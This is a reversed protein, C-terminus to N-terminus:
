NVRMCYNFAFIFRTAETWSTLVATLYNHYIYSAYGSGASRGAILGMIINSRRVCLFSMCVMVIQFVILSFHPVTKRAIINMKVMMALDMVAINVLPVEVVAYVVNM